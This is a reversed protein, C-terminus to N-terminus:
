RITGIVFVVTVEAKKRSKLNEYDQLRTKLWPQLESLTIQEKLVMFADLNLGSREEYIIAQDICELKDIQRVLQSTRTEGAEFEYWLDLILDAFRPNSPRITCALFKLAM